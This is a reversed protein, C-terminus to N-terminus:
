PPLAGAERPDHFAGLFPEQSALHRHVETLLEAPVAQGVDPARKAQGMHPGDTEDSGLDAPSALGMGVKGFSEVVQFAIDHFM